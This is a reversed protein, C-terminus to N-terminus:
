RSRFGQKELWEIPPSVKSEKDFRMVRMDRTGIWLGADTAALATIPLGKLAPVHDFNSWTKAVRDCKELGHHTGVWICEPEVVLAGVCARRRWKLVKLNGAAM